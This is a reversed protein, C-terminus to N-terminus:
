ANGEVDGDPEPAVHLQEYRNEPNSATGRGPLPGPREM